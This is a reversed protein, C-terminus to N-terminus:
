RGGANGFLEKEEDRVVISIPIRTDQSIVFLMEGRSATRLFNTESDSLNMMQGLAELEKVGQAMVGIYASNDVIVQGFRKIEDATFDIMNQTSVILSGNYKRIRKSTRKLFDIGDKNNPDILLHAEDVVLIIPQKSKSVMNWAWSLINFFQTRLVTEDSDVLTHIDLVIFDSQANVTSIGNWLISDAGDTMRKTISVLKELSNTYERSSNHKSEKYENLLENYLDSMIPYDDPKLNSINTNFDIDKKIYTKKLIDELITGEYETLDRFYYKIFTRFIQFHKAIDIHNDVDDAGIRAELPNIIGSQGSGCDIWDGKVSLCLDKYEREPDIVIIKVGRAWSGRIIKKLMTSKGSGSKGIVTMNSNNRKSTRKWLDFTVISGGLDEGLIISDKEDQLTEYVFPFSAAFTTIPIPLGYDKILNDAVLPLCMKFGNEQEFMLDIGNLNASILSNKVEKKLTELEERSNAYVLFNVGIKVIKENSRDIKNVLEEYDSMQNQLLIQDNHDNVNIMKTKVESISKKLTKSVEHSDMPTVIISMRTNELNSLGSLWAINVFSPYTNVTIVSAYIDNILIDKENFKFCFPCIKDKFTKNILKNENQYLELSKTPNLSNYILERLEDSKLIDSRLNIANFKLVLDNLKQKLNNENNDTILIYFDRNKINGVKNILSAYEIDENLLQQKNVNKEINLKTKLENINDNLNVKSDMSLIQYKYNMSLLIKKFQEIKSTQEEEYMLYLNLCNIKIGSLINGDELICVNNWVEKYPIYEKITKDEKKKLKEKLKL